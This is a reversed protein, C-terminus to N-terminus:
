ALGCSVAFCFCAVALLRGVVCGCCGLGRSGFWCLCGLGGRWLSWGVLGLGGCGWWVRGSVVVVAVLLGGSVLCGAGRRWFCLWCWWWAWFVSRRGGLLAARLLVLSCVFALVSRRRLCPALLVVLCPLAFAHAAFFVCVADLHCPSAVLLFVLGCAAHSSPLPPLCCNLSPWPRLAAYASAAAFRTVSCPALALALYMLWVLCFRMAGGTVFM